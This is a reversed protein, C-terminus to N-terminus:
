IEYAKLDWNDNNKLDNFNISYLTFKIDPNLYSKLRHCLEFGITIHKELDSLLMNEHKVKRCLYYPDCDGIIWENFDDILKVDNTIDEIKIKGDYTLFGYEFFDGAILFKNLEKTELEDYQKANNDEIIWLIKDLNEIEEKTYHPSDTFVVLDSYICDFISSSQDFAINNLYIGSDVLLQFIEPRLSLEAQFLCNFGYDPHIYNLDVGKEILYKITEYYDNNKDNDDDPNILQMLLSDGGYVVININAGKEILRDIADKNLVPKSVEICLERDLESVSDDIIM